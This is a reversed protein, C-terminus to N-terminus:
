YFCYAGFDISEATGSCEGRVQLQTGSPLNVNIPMAPHFMLYEATNTIARIEHGNLQADGVGLEFHYVSASMATSDTKGQPVLMIGSYDRSLTSGLSAFASESGTNGSTHATGASTATDVGYSDCASFISGYGFRTDGEFLFISVEIQKSVVASQVRGAIRTGKPIFIPFYHGQPNGSTGGTRWGCLLNNIITKESGSAGIGIDLLSDTRTNSAASSNIDIWIGVVDYATVALLQGSSYAGKTHPTASATLRTGILTGAPTAVLNNEMKVHYSKPVFLGM